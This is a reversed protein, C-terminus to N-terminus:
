YPLSFTAKFFLELLFALILLSAYEPKENENENENENEVDVM